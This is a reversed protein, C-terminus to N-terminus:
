IASAVDLLIAAHNLTFSFITTACKHNDKCTKPTNLTELKRSGCLYMINCLYLGTSNTIHNCPSSITCHYYDNTRCLLTNSSVTCSEIIRIFSNMGQCGSDCNLASGTTTMMQCEMMNSVPAEDEVISLTNQGPSGCRNVASINIRHSGCSCQRYVTFMSGGNIIENSRNMSTENIQVIFHSVDEASINSPTNWSLHLDCNNDSGVQYAKIQPRGPNALIGSYLLILDELDRLFQSFLTKVVKSGLLLVWLSSM